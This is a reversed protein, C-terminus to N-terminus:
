LTLESYRNAITITASGFYEDWNQIRLDYGGPLCTWETCTATPSGQTNAVSLFLHIPAVPNAGLVVSKLPRTQSHPCDCVQDGPQYPGRVRKGNERDMRM